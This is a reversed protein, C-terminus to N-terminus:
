NQWWIGGIIRIQMTVLVRLTLLQTGSLIQRSNSPAQEGFGQGVGICEFANSTLRNRESELM